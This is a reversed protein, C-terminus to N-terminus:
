LPLYMREYGFPRGTHFANSNRAQLGPVTTSAAQTFCRLNRTRGGSRYEHLNWVYLINRGRESTFICYQSFGGDVLSLTSPRLGGPCSNRIMHRASLTMDNM